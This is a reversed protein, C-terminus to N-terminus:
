ASTDEAIVQEALRVLGLMPVDIWTPRNAAEYAIEYAAKQILFLRLLSDDGVATSGGEMATRYGDLFARAARTRFADLFADVRASLLHAHSATSKRQVVAAAYDFSRLVGAVDRWPSSKSRREAAPKAPEGEFDILFVDGNAVLVQGLHLDGHIRTRPSGIGRRATNGLEESIRDRASILTDRHHDEIIAEAPPSMIAAMALDLQEGAEVAWQDACAADVPLPDFAPDDSPRALVLHLEGVRRGLLSAFVEYDEHREADAAAADDGGALDSLGRILLDLTWTWADGQNRIFGQAVALTHRTGDNDVRLMEGFLPAINPYGQATLYRGMEAEPHPGDTIRRFIKLMVSSGIILSSNSQEASLWNIEAHPPLEVDKIRDTPEFRISGSQTELVRADALCGFIAYAFESLTFGDTLLGVRAGRRVRALALQATLPSTPKDEWAVGLPLLWRQVGAASETEIEALLLDSAPLAAVVILHAASVSQDKLAFWRRKALYPRLTEREISTRSTALAPALDNRIVITQYDPMPEPAPTHSSPWGAEEALLFWYFGFPPLTLLYTLQGVPPFISGGDLEVPVRGNFESLDLEV